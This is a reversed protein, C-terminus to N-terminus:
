KDQVASYYEVRDREKFGGGTYIIAVSGDSGFYDVVKLLGKFRGPAMGLLTHSDPDLIPKSDEFVKLIQGRELGTQEGANLYFRHLDVRAIRGSWELKRAFEPLEPNIKDIARSIAGRGHEVDFSTPTRENLFETHEETIEASALKSYIERGTRADILQIQVTADVTFERMRFIGAEEGTQRANVSQITGMLIGSINHSRAKDLILPLNYEGVENIFNENGEVETQPIVVIDSQDQLSLVARSLAFTPLDDNGTRTKNVFRLALIRKKPIPIGDFPTAAVKKIDEDDTPTILNACAVFLCSGCVLTSILALTRM